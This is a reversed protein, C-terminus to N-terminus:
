DRSGHADSIETAVSHVGLSTVFEECDFCLVPGTPDDPDCEAIGANVADYRFFTGDDDEEPSPAMFCVPTKLDVGTNVLQSVIGFLEGLNIPEGPESRQYLFGESM